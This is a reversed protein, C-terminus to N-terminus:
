LAGPASPHLACSNFSTGKEAIMSKAKIKSWIQGDWNWYVSLWINTCTIKSAFTGCGSEKESPRGIVIRPYMGRKEEFIIASWHRAAGFIAPPRGNRETLSIVICCCNKSLLACLVFTAWPPKVSSRTTWGKVQDRSLHSFAKQYKHTDRQCHNAKPYPREIIHFTNELNFAWTAVRHGGSRPGRLTIGWRNACHQSNCGCKTWRMDKQWTVGNVYAPRYSSM